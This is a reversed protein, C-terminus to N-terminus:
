SDSKKPRGRKKGSSSAATKKKPKPGPKKGRRKRLVEKDYDGALIRKRIEKEVAKPGVTRRGVKKNVFEKKVHSVGSKIAVLYWDSDYDIVIVKAKNRKAQVASDGGKGSPRLPTQPPAKRIRLNM